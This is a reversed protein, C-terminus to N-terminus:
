AYGMTIWVSVGKCGMRPTVTGGCGMFASAKAALHLFFSGRFFFRGLTETTL